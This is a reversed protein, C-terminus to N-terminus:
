LISEGKSEMFDTREIYEYNKDTLISLNLSKKENKQNRREYFSIKQV